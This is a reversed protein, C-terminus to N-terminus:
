ISTLITSSADGTLVAQVRCSPLDINFSTTASKDSDPIDTFAEAKLQIQLKSTGTSMVTKVNYKGSKVRTPDATALIQISM